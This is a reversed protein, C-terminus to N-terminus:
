EPKRLRLRGSRAVLAFYIRRPLAALTALATRMIWPFAIEFRNGAMGSVIRRAAEEPSMLLPMAFRNKATLRTAVFGPNCIQVRVATGSLDCRLSEALNILAAKTAGYGWANPLGVYGSLSGVLVIHGAGRASFVPVVAALVRLVGTLNVAVMNEVTGIDPQLASMPEYAGACYIIGDVEGASEFAGFPSDSGTVDIPLCAHGEVPLGVTPLEAVLAQLAQSDRASVVLAVGEHALRVALARGIGQSAGILWFRKGSLGSM